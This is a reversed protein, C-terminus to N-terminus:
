AGVAPPNTLRQHREWDGLVRRAFVSPHIGLAGIEGRGIRSGLKEKTELVILRAGAQELRQLSRASVDGAVVVPTDPAGRLLTLTEEVGMALKGARRALALQDLVRGQLRAATEQVVTAGDVDPGSWGKFIRNLGKTTLAQLVTDRDPSLYVGRGPAKAGLDVHPRGDPSLVLRLLASKPRRARTFACQRVPEDSRHTKGEADTWM